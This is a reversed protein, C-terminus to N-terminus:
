VQYLNAWANGGPSYFGQGNNSAPATATNRSPGGFLFPITAALNQTSFLPTTAGALNSNVGAKSLYGQALTNRPNMMIAIYQAVMNQVAMEDQLKSQAQAVDIRTNGQAINNGLDAAAGREMAMTPGSRYAGVAGARDRIGSLANQFATQADDASRAKMQAALTDSITYPNQVRQLLMDGLQQFRPDAYQATLAENLTRTADEGANKARKVSSNGFLSSFLGM